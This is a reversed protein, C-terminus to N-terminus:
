KFAPVGDGPHWHKALMVDFVLTSYAPISGNSSATAGYGLTYPIYVTWRDGDHMQMLATTFGDVFGGGSVIDDIPKAVALDLTGTYTQDFVKGAPYNSTPILRGRYHVRVSDTYLPTTTGSGQETVHVVVYDTTNLSATTSAKSWCPIIKWSTDSIIKQQTTTYLADWYAENRHQWDAYENEDDDSESCSTLTVVSLMFLLSLMLWGTKMGHQIIRISESNM